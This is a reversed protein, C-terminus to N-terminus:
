EIEKGKKYYTYTWKIADTLYYFMLAYIFVTIM